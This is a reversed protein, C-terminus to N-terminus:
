APTNAPHAARLDALTVSVPVASVRRDAISIITIASPDTTISSLRATPSTTTTTTSWKAAAGTPEGTTGGGALAASYGSALAWASRLGLGSSPEGWGVRISSSLYGTSM